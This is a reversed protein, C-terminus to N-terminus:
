KTGSGKEMENEAPVRCATNEEDTSHKVDTQSNDSNEHMQDRMDENPISQTPTQCNEDSTKVTKNQLKAVTCESTYKADNQYDGPSKESTEDQVSDVTDKEPNVQATNQYGSQAKEPACNSEKEPSSSWETDKVPVDKAANQYGEQMKEAIFNALYGWADRVQNDCRKGLVDSFVDLISSMFLDLYDDRFGM